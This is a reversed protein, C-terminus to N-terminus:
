SRGFFSLLNSQKDQAPGLDGQKTATKPSVALRKRKAAPSDKQIQKVPSSMQTEVEKGTNRTQTRSKRTPKEPSVESKKWHSSSKSDHCKFDGSVRKMQQGDELDHMIDHDPEMGALLSKKDYETLSEKDQNDPICLTDDESIQFGDASLHALEEHEINSDTESSRKGFLKAIKSDTAVKPKM